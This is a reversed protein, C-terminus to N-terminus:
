FEEEFSLLSCLEVEYEHEKERLPVKTSHELLYAKLVENPIMDSAVFVKDIKDQVHSEIAKVHDEVTYFETEGSQTM